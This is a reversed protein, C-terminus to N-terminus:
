EYDKLKKSLKTFLYQYFTRKLEFFLGKESKCRKSKKKIENDKKIKETTICVNTNKGSKHLYMRDLVQRAYYPEIKRITIDWFDDTRLHKFKKQTIKSFSKLQRGDDIHQEECMERLTKLVDVMKIITEQRYSGKKYRM